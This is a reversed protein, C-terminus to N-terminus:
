DGRLKEALESLKRLRHNVGSKGVPPSLYEGLEKLAADPYELRLEAVQRLNDKLNDFGYHEKIYQIDAIQKTAANVTKTINATECNVRRNISNRMDKFIRLNELKMLSIHAGIVNLLEVIEESEKIYVVQYKKRVVTKAHIGYVLLIDILQAAQQTDVCVYELHYAKEPNSMSGVSLFAGRLFARKCCFSKILLPNVLLDDSGHKIMQLVKRVHNADQIFQEETFFQQGFLRDLLMHCRQMVLDDMVVEIHTAGLDDTKILGAYMLIAALEAIQCHRADNEFRVLEDKVDGSFSM